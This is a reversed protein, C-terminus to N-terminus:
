PTPAEPPTYNRNKFVRGDPSQYFEADPPAEAPSNVKPVKSYDIAPAAGSQPQTSPQGSAAPQGAPRAPANGAGLPFIPNEMFSGGQAVRQEDEDLVDAPDINRRKADAAVGKYHSKMADAYAGAFLEMSGAFQKRDAPSLIAGETSTLHEKWKYAKQTLPTMRDLFEIMSPRIVASPNSLKLFSDILTIDDLNSPNPKSLARQAGNMAVKAIEIGTRHNEEKVRAKLKDAAEPANPAETAVTRVPSVPKGEATLFQGTVNKQGSPLVTTTLHETAGHHLKMELQRAEDDSVSKQIQQLAQTTDVQGTPLLPLPLGEHYMATKRHLEAVAQPTGGNKLNNLEQRAKINATEDLMDFRSHEALLQKKKLHNLLVDAPVKNILARTSLKSFDTDFTPTSM